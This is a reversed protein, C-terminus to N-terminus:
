EALVSLRRCRLLMPKWEPLRTMAGWTEKNSYPNMIASFDAFYFDALGRTGYRSYVSDCLMYTFVTESAGGKMSDLFASGSWKLYILSCYREYTEPDPKDFFVKYVTPDSELHRLLFKDGKKLPMSAHIVVDGNIMSFDVDTYEEYLNKNEYPYSILLGEDSGFYECWVEVGSTNLTIRKCIMGTFPISVIILILALGLLMDRTRVKEEKAHTEPDTSRYFVRGGYGTYPYSRRNGPQAYTTQPAPNNSKHTYRLAHYDYRARRQPDSLVEYAQQIQIFKAAAGPERNVDPHYQKALRRYAHRVEDASADQGIELVQYYFPLM